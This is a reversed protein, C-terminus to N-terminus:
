KIKSLIQKTQPFGGYLTQIRDNEMFYFRYTNLFPGSNRNYIYNHRIVSVAQHTDYIVRM